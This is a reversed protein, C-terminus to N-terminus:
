NPIVGDVGEVYFDMGLLVGDDAVEGDGLWVSGDQKNIPGTFPHLNGSIIGDRASNVLNVVVQPVDESVDALEVM